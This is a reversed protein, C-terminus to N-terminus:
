YPRKLFSPRVHCIREHMNFECRGIDGVVRLFAFYQDDDDPDSPTDAHRTSCGAMFLLMAGALITPQWM